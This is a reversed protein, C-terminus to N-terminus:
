GRLKLSWLLVPNAFHAQKKFLTHEPYHWLFTALILITCPMGIDSKGVTLMKNGKQIRM